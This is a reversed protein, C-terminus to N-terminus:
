NKALDCMAVAKINLQLSSLQRNRVLVVAHRNIQYSNIVDSVVNDVNQTANKRMAEWMIGDDTHLELCDALILRPGQLEKKTKSSYTIKKPPGFFQSTIARVGCRLQNQQTQMVPLKSSPGFVLKKNVKYLRWIREKRRCSLFMCSLEDRNKRRKCTEFSVCM